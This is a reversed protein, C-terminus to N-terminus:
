LKFVQRILSAYTFPPRVDANKYFEQNRQIEGVLSSNNKESLKRRVSPSINSSLPQLVSSRVEAIMKTFSIHDLHKEDLNPGSSINLKSEHQENKSQEVAQKAMHLHAMMAHLRDREKQLQIELQSVVQMQVRAQATARDDLNHDSNLHKNFAQFDDFDSECGPWKCVGHGYLPNLKEAFEELFEEPLSSLGNLGDWRIFDLPNLIGNPGHFNKYNLPHNGDINERPHEKWPSPIEGPNLGRQLLYKRQTFQWQQMLQQQEQRLALLQSQAVEGGKKDIADLLHTQQIFNAQLREQIQQMIQELQRREIGNRQQLFYPHYQKHHNQQDQIFISHQKLLIQLQARSLIQHPFLKTNDQQQQQQQQENLLNHKFKIQNPQQILRQYDDHTSNGYSVQSSQRSSPRSNGNEESGDDKSLGNHGNQEKLLLPSCRGVDDDHFKKPSDIKFIDAM